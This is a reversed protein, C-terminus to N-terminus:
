VNKRFTETHLSLLSETLNQLLSSINQITLIKIILKCQQVRKILTIFDKECKKFIIVSKTLFSKIDVSSFIGELYIFRRQIDLWDNLIIQLQNLKNEWSTAQEKFVNYFPSSQM